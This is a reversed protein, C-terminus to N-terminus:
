TRSLYPNSLCLVKIEERINTCESDTLKMTNQPPTSHHYKNDANKHFDTLDRGGHLGFSIYSVARSGNCLLNFHLSVPISFIRICGSSGCKFTGKSRARVEEESIQETEDKDLM